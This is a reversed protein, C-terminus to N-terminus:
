ENFALPQSESTQTLLRQTLVSRGPELIAVRQNRRACAGRFEEPNGTNEAFMGYHMPVAVRPEIESMLQAAAQPDMNGWRGNICVFAIDPRRGVREHIGRSLEPFHSTDGSFWLLHPGAAILLGVADPDSHRAPTADVRFSGIQASEGNSLLAIRGPPVGLAAAHRCVSGPGVLKCAAFHKMITGVTEPDFHDLHDHTICLADPALSEISCPPPMLRRMGEKEQVINSFYPDIVLRSGGHALLYGSQGLWTIEMLLHRNHQPM